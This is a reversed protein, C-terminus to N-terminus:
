SHRATEEAQWGGGLAKYLTIVGVLEDLQAQSLQLEANFLRTDTDLVELYSSVGGRYRLDAVQSADTLSTVLKEQEVRAERRKQVEILADAVERIAQQITQQYRLLAEQTRAEAIDVQAQLKGMNFIPLTVTPLATFVGLPGFSQGSVVMGGAGAFGTIMVTPFLQATAAGIQANASVLQQEAQRIDPRRALLDSPVGAPVTPLTVQQVLPRGRPIPAPDRGLLINIANETQTIQREFNPITKAADAVLAESQRVDLLQAVGGELRARTLELSQQRSVLTRRSTELTADFARLDFYAQAVQAILTTMVARRADESALLDARASETARRLRGWLDLEWAISVGGDPAFVDRPTTPPRNNGLYGTYPAEVTGNVTPFLQSRAVTVQAQAQLIRTVTVRLDYNAALATRILEVLNPDTFLDWWALDGVSPAPIPPAPAADRYASPLDVRPRRYDPGLTCATCAALVVLLVSVSKM